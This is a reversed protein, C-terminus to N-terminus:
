TVWVDKMSFTINIFGDMLGPTTLRVWGVQSLTYKITPYNFLCPCLLGRLFLTISLSAHDVM